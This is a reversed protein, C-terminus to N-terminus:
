SSLLDVILFQGPLRRFDPYRSFCRMLRQLPAGYLSEKNLGDWDQRGYMQSANLVQESYGKGGISKSKNIIYSRGFSRVTESTFPFDIL